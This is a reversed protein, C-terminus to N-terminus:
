DAAIYSMWSNAKATLGHQSIMIEWPKNCVHLVVKEGVEEM